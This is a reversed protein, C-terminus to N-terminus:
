LQGRTLSAAPNYRATPPTSHGPLYIDFFSGCLRTQELRHTPKTRDLLSSSGRSKEWL